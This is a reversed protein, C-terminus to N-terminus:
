AAVAYAERPETRHEVVRRNARADAVCDARTEFSQLSEAILIGKRWQEWRWGAFWEYHFSFADQAQTDHLATTM